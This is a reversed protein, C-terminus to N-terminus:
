TAAKGAPIAGCEPCRDPTARLDYGCFGCLGARAQLRAKERQAFAVGIRYILHLALALMLVIYGLHISKGPVEIMFLAWLVLVAQLELVHSPRMLKWNYRRGVWSVPSLAALVAVFWYPIAATVRFNGAGPGWEGSGFGLPFEYNREGWFDQFSGTSWGVREGAAPVPLRRLAYESPAYGCETSAFTIRGGGSFIGSRYEDLLGDGDDTIRVIGWHDDIFYTRLWMTLTALFLLATLAAAFNFTWRLLRKM